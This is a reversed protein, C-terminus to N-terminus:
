VGTVPETEVNVEANMGFEVMGVMGFEVKEETESETGDETKEETELPLCAGLM